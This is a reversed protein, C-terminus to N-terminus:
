GKEDAIQASGNNSSEVVM